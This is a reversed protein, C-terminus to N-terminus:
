FLAVSLSQVIMLSTWGPIASGVMLWKVFARIVEEIALAGFVLGLGISLQLPVTSFSTAAGWALAILKTYPYKTEGAVRPARQYPVAIQPYGVWAVMGRLFRHVEHMSRIGDLATRSILRFDGTDVPLRKYVLTSMLRYFTWAAFLKLKPEGARTLRQGYAVDYGECYREIMLHIVQLPDQLDADIIAIADGTVFDLGATVAIQHGFNRSLHIVKIRPDETAWQAIKQITSDSSGDNVIILEASCKLQALFDNMEARLFDVVAEENYMPAVISLHAPYPRRQLLHNTERLALAYIEEPSWNVKRNFVRLVSHPHPM